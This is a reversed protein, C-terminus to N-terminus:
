GGRKSSGPHHEDLFREFANLSHEPTWWSCILRISSESSSIKEWEYFHFQKQLQNILQSSVIPFIQNSAFEYALPIGHAALSRVLRNAKENGIKALRFFLDDQFLTRFQTGIARGRALLAGRQKLHWPFDEQLNPKTVILAEGFLAGNKTGGITFVDALRAVEALSPPSMQSMIASGLRAGDIYVLMGHSRALESLVELEERTYITGLETSQSLYLLRPRSMHEGRTKQLLETLAEPIIKGQHHDIEHVKHGTAEIAGAEHHLIHATKASVISEFPKLLAAATLLNAQTGGSVFFVKSQPSECASRLLAEAEESASDRGYGMEPTEIDKQLARIVEPHGGDSYDNLFFHM